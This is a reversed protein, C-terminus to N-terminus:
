QEERRSLVLAARQRAIEAAPEGALSRDPGARRLAGANRTQIDGAIGRAICLHDDHGCGFPGLRRNGDVSLQRPLLPLSFSNPIGTRQHRYRLVFGVDHQDQDQAQRLFCTVDLM